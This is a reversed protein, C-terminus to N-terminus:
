ASKRNGAKMQQRFFALTQGLGDELSVTPKWGLVEAAKRNDICSRMQEGPKRPAHAASLSVGAGRAMVRYLENLDTEIGTGINIPGQV